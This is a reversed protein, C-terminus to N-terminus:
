YIETEAFEWDLCKNEMLEKLYNYVDEDCVENNEFELEIIVRKSM